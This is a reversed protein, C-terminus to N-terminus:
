LEVPKCLTKSKQAVRGCKKCYFQANTVLAKFEEPEKKILDNKLLKCLPKQKEGM